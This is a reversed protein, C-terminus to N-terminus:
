KTYIGDTLMTPDLQKKEIMLSKLIKRDPKSQTKKDLVLCFGKLTNNSLIFIHSVDHDHKTVSLYGAPINKVLGCTLLKLGFFGSTKISFAGEYPKQQGVMNYAAITGQAVADRWKGSQTIQGTANDKVVVADGGAYIDPNSTMMYDNVKIGNDSVELDAKLALHNNVTTGYAFVLMDCPLTKGNSLTISQITGKDSKVSQVTANTELHTGAAQIYKKILNSGASDARQGLVHEGRTIITVDLGLAHLADACELGRLGSGIVVAHKKHTSKMTAFCSMMANVAHMNHYMFVNNCDQIGQIPPLLFSTGTGLFLKDYVQTSGDKLTIYKKQVNIDTVRQGLRLDIGLSHADQETIVIPSKDCKGDKSLYGHLKTKNYPLEKEDSFCIVHSTPEVEKLARAASLGAASTGICVYTKYDNRKGHSCSSSIFVILAILSFAITIYLSLQM